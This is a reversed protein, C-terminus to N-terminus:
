MGTLQGSAAGLFLGRIVGRRAYMAKMKCCVSKGGDGFTMIRDSRRNFRRLQVLVALRSSDEVEGVVDDDVGCETRGDPATNTTM